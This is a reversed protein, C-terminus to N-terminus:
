RARVRPKPLKAGDAPGLTYRKTVDVLYRRELAPGYAVDRLQHFELMGLGVATTCIAIAIALFQVSSVTLSALILIGPYALVAVNRIGEGSIVVMVSVLVTLGMALTSALRTNGLSPYGRGLLAFAIASAAIIPAQFLRGTGLTVLVFAVLLTAILVAILRLLRQLDLEDVPPLHDAFRDIDPFDTLRPEPLRM